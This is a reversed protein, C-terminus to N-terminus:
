AAPVPDDAGFEGTRAIWGGGLMRLAGTKGSYFVCAQGPSVGYESNQLHIITEGSKRILAAPQPARTSRIRVKLLMPEDPMEELPTDGLWNLDRLYVMGTRLEERPGVLVRNTRAEIEIVYLPDGVAVGLGRRQGITFGSIGDHVGLVRGDTHMIEGPAEGQAALDRVVEKYDGGPVFCIDQSDPKAAVSLGLEQALARTENKTLGGLPFRVFELQARTISFLFYSQDRGTEAGQYIASGRRRPKRQVYHGTALAGAGLDRAFRVLDTFKVTENCRICPVPTEGRRYSRAFDEMVAARFRREYDVVYHAIGLDAAVNRADMIDRGACCSKARIGAEGHDYLQMTVGTVDYGRAAYLAATVSSDVGGSMAIVIHRGAEGGPKEITALVQDVSVM